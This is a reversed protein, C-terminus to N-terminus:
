FFFLGASFLKEVAKFQGSPALVIVTDASKIELNENIDLLQSNRIVSCIEVNKPKKIKNLKMGAIKSTELVEFAMLDGLQSKLSYISRVQGKRIHQLITSTAIINPNVIIDLGLNSLMHNYIDKNILSFTRKVGHQKALLSLLINDEDEDTLCIMADAKKINAEDLIAEDMADGKIVLAESLHKALYLAKNEKQEIISLHSAIGELEMMKALILGIRGGGVIVVKNARNTPHGFAELVSDYHKMDTIFYVEDDAKFIAKDDLTLRQNNRVIASVSVQFEPFKKNLNLAKKRELDSGSICRTGIFVSGDPLPLFELAGPTKLNRLITRAVEKEPSIVVDIHLDDFLPLYGQNSYYGSRIRAIKLPINFLRSAELCIIMNVEDSPTVAIILDADAAGASDLVEPSSAIGQIVQIDMSTEIKKLKEADADIVSVQHGENFLYSAISSGVHGCGCIVVKM